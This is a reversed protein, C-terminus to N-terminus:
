QTPKAIVAHEIFRTALASPSHRSHLAFTTLQPAKPGLSRFLIGTPDIHQTEPEPILGIAAGAAVVMLLENVDSVQRTITFSLEFGRLGEVAICPEKSLAQTSIQRQSALAHSESVAAILSDKWLPLATVEASESPDRAFGVDLLHSELATLQQTLSLRQIDIHVEPFAVHYQALLRQLRIGHLSREIGIRLAGDQGLALHALAREAEDVSGLIQRAHRLLIEGAPLLWSRRSTRALLPTGLETEFDKIAKSLPSQEIGVRQAARAFHLEEAVAVFYKLQRLEM